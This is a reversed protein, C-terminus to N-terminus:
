FVILNKLNPNLSDQKVPLSYTDTTAVQERKMPVKENGFLEIKQQRTTIKSVQNPDSQILYQNEYWDSIQREGAPYEADTTNSGFGEVIIKGEHDEEDEELGQAYNLLQNRVEQLFISLNTDKTKKILTTMKNNITDVDVDENEIGAINLLESLTYHNVNNDFNDSNFSPM